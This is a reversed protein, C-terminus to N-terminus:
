NGTGGAPDEPVASGLSTPTPTPTPTPTVTAPASPDADQSPTPEGDPSASPARESPSPTPDPTQTKEDQSPTRKSNGSSVHGLTTGTSDNQGLLASIPKGTIAEVATIGGFTTVLVAVTALAIKRWPLLRLGFGEVPGTDTEDALDPDEDDGARRSRKGPRLPGDTVRRPIAGTLTSTQRVQAATRRVAEASRRLSATYAAAGITAVVSGLAAGIITGATGAFSAFVAATVAALASGAVQAPSLGLAPERERQEDTM